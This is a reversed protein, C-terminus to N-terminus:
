GEAGAGKKLEALLTLAQLPTLQNIDTERLRKHVPDDAAPLRVVVARENAARRVQEADGDDGGHASGGGGYLADLREKLLREFDAAQLHMMVDLM